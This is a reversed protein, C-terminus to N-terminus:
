QQRAEMHTQSSARLEKESPTRELTRLPYDSCKLDVGIRPVYKQCGLRSNDLQVGRTFVLIALSLIPCISPQFVNAYVHRPTDNMGEQDNKTFAFRVVLADGEWTMHDYRISGVSASRAMLNWCFILFPHVITSLSHDKEYTMAMHALCQFGQTTIPRKGENISMEGSDKLQAVKRKYGCAYDSLLRSLKDPVEVGAEHHLYKIASKCANISSYSKFVTRDNNESDKAKRCDVDLFKICMGEDLPLVIQGNRMASPREKSLWSAFRQITKEYQYRTKDGYKMRLIESGSGGSSNTTNM